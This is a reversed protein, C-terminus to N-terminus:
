RQGAGKAIARLTKIQEHRPSKYYDGSESAQKNKRGITWKQYLLWDKLKTKLVISQEVYRTDKWNLFFDLGWYSRSLGPGRGGLGWSGGLKRQIVDSLDWQCGQPQESFGIVIGKLGKGMTRSTDAPAVRWMKGCQKRMENLSRNLPRGKM